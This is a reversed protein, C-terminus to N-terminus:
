KQGPTQGTDSSANHVEAATPLIFRFLAGQPFASDAWLRGGHAEVITRCISLGMGLGDPKTTYFPDFLRDLNAPDIGPGSDEVTVLVSNAEMTTSVVLRRPRGQLAGMAESANRILNLLVQQLQIRDGKVLPLDEAFESQLIVQRSELERLFLSIVERSADNMDVLGTRAEKKAFLARLRSIIGAARNADRIARRATEQAGSVNPPDAGLMRLCTSANTVIGSLPQNIEHAISASLQGITAVRNVHALEMTVEHYRRESERAVEEARKLDTLDLVFAVSQSRVQDFIAAGVLVPFRSGDKKLFEREYPRAVGTARMEAVRQEYAGLWDGPIMEPVRLKGSTIDARDHDVMQLFADNSDLIRGKLDAIVIGIINADVLRRIKAEREALDGYLYSNEVSIAAQLALLKLVAIRSPTFAYPTLNNELYLVGTMKSESVLPLCLISRANRVRVYSDTSFTPHASADDLIVIERTRMVYNVISQPLAMASGGSRRVIVADDGTIAEAQQQLEHERSLILVGREAGTHEIALRLLTDILRELVIEGSVAQSVKSVTEFDVQEIRTAAMSTESHEAGSERLYPHLAELQRVKGDAGWRLYCARAERLYAKAITEFGRAAYFGAARENALAENNVFGKARASHIAREYLRMAELERSEIRAIEASVLAARSEFNEPCNEAWVALQKHHANLAELHQRHQAPLASDCSAAHSLAGYFHAEASELFWQSTWLLQQVNASAGTAAVYDGAFFRAQLKRIWYWCAVIALSPDSLRREVQLEDFRAETLCGFTGTMGRLTRILALQASIIDTVLGFRARFVLGEEAERQVEALPDGAVFLNTILNIYCYAGYTLDGMTNAADFARRILDRCTRVHETWPMVLAGFCNYTRAKFREFGYREALDYGLRGFRFGAQYNGFRPGAIRGLGAYAFCSADVNGHQVSLSVMRCATLTLLNQDTCMAPSTLKNLVDLTAIHIPDSMLPLVILEEIARGGLLSWTREYERRAEMETPHPSWEVGRDRLYALGVDVARELRGLTTYLDIQLCAVTAQDVITSARSALKTLREGATELEGTLFECEGRHLELQFILDTQREWCDGSLLASGSVLYRLASAYAAAAKARKGASLYFEAVQEREERSTILGASNDFQGVIDFIAEERQDPRIHAALLRGIGLHIGSRLDQPISSYVAEQVRDHVFRYLTDSRVVLETRLAEWLDAHLKDESEQEVISLFRIQASNGLFALQQLVHKTAIPLRRLKDVMLDAVNDTYGKAEIRSLDWCWQARAHDFALLGEDVLTSIFQIAFFPNGATKALILQTLPQAREAACHLSDTVLRTLDERDLPALEIPRTRGGGERITQLKRMLPHDPSIENDRYAGILLLHRVDGQTLLSEVLDLTAADLWQLDDIFLALPHERRAFVGIFRRFVLHFRGKAEQPPLEPVVPQEGIILKLEPVLDAILRGNPGLAGVLDHRWKTIEAESQGLLQRILNQFAQALTAYPIDRKYQDLKGSAFLGRPLVLVKHLENVVASKGIGSYGSVLVLEPVGSALVGDFAALLSEIERERGYLKEPIFLQSAIDHEGLPFPNIWQAAEWAAWCRRLDHELGGATQYRDETAKALLKMVIASIAPPIRPVQDSPSAPQRAIHCHIWEMPDSAAFPLVGTLMEYFTVGLAYLDSRADVSRNMRGTQEPAMYALTGSILEPPAPSHRERALRSAIGFGTLWVQDDVPSVLINAPKIDKHILGCEHLRRLAVSLNVALRLFKVVDATPVILRDVRGGPAELVLVTQGRTQVLELPRIAWESAIYDSLEYEHTLRAVTDPTPHEAAPRVAMFEQRRGGAGVRWTKCFIREGDQWLVELPLDDTGSSSLMTM